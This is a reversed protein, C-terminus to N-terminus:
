KRLSSVHGEILTAFEGSRDFRLAERFHHIAKGSEGIRQFLVGLNYHIEASDPSLGLAQQYAAITKQTEGLAEYCTALLDWTEARPDLRVSTQLHPIAREYEAMKTLSYGMWYSGRPDDPFEALFNSLYRATMPYLWSGLEEADILLLAYNLWIAKVERRPDPISLSKEYFDRAKMRAELAEGPLGKEEFILGLEKYSNAVNSLTFPNEPNLEIASSFYQIAKKQLSIAEDLNGEQRLTMGETLYFGGLNSLPIPQQSDLEAARLTLRLGEETRGARYYALGKARYSDPASRYTAEWLTNRDKWDANRAVVLASSAITVLGIIAALWKRGVKNALASVGIGCVLSAGVLPLYLFHDAAIEHFPILQLVPALAVLIWLLGVSLYANRRFVWLSLGIYTVVMLVAFLTAPELFGTSIPFVGGTYDAILPHPYVIMKLYHVFLKFSTGLHTPLSGGWLGEMRSARNIFIAGFLALGALLTFAGYLWPQRKAAAIVAQVISPRGASERNWERLADVLLLMVPFVIAVEKSLVAMLFCAFAMALKTYDGNRSRLYLILGLLLFFAALLDKRGSIYAVAASQIPHVAFLLGASGAVLNSRGLLLVLSYVLLVNLGHLLINVLHYGFPDEGGIAYNLGYTLTRVPRYGDRYLISFWDLSRVSPNQLILTVDDFVFDHGLTNVYLGVSILFLGLGIWLRWSPTNSSPKRQRRKRSFSKRSM